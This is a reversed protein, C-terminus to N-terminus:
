GELRHDERRGERRRGALVAIAGARSWISREDEERERRNEKARPERLRSERAWDLAVVAAVVVIPELV